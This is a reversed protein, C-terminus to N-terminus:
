PDEGSLYDCTMPLKEIILEKTYAAFNRYLIIFLIIFLIPPLFFALLTLQENGECIVCNQHAGSGPHYGEACLDCLVGSQTEYCSADGVETGGAWFM